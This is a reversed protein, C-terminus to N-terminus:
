VDLSINFPCDALPTQLESVDPSLIFGSTVLCASIVLPSLTSLSYFTFTLSRTTHGGPGRGRSPCTSTSSPLGSPQEETFLHLTISTLAELTAFDKGADPDGQQWTHRSSPRERGGSYSSLHTM